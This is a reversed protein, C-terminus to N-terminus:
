FVWFRALIESFDRIDTSHCLQDQAASKTVKELNKSFFGSIKPGLGGGGPFIGRDPGGGSIQGGSVGGSGFIQGRSGGLGGFNQGGPPICLFGTLGPSFDCKKTLFVGFDPWKEVKKPNEPPDGPGAVTDWSNCFKQLGFVSFFNTKQMKRGGGSKGPNKPNKSLKEGGRPGGPLIPRDGMWLDCFDAMLIEFDSYM